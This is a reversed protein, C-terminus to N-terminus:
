KEISNKIPRKNTLLIIFRYVEEADVHEYKGTTENYVIKGFFKVPVRHKPKRVEWNFGTQMWQDPLELQYGNEIKQKFLGFEYRITHGHGPYALTIHHIKTDIINSFISQSFISNINM